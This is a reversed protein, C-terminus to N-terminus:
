HRVRAYEHKALKVRLSRYRRMETSFNGNVTTMEKNGSSPGLMFTLVNHKQFLSGSTFLSWKEVHCNGAHSRKSNEKNVSQKRRVQFLVLAFTFSVASCLFEFIFDAM